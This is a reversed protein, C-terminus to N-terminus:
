GCLVGIKRAHNETVAAVVKLAALDLRIDAVVAHLDTLLVAIGIGDGEVGFGATGLQRVLTLIEIVATLVIGIMANIVSPADPLSRHAAAIISRGVIDISRCLAHVRNIQLPPRINRPLFGRNPCDLTLDSLEEIDLVSGTFAKVIGVHDCHVDISQAKGGLGGVHAAFVGHVVVVGYALTGLEAKACRRQGGCPLVVAVGDDGMLLQVVGLPLSQILTVAAGNIQFVVDLLGAFVEQPLPDIQLLVAFADIGEALEEVNVSDACRLGQLAAHM